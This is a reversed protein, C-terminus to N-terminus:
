GAGFVELEWLSYGWQTARQTGLMRVWRGSAVVDMDDIGGDGNTTAYVTIWNKNDLSTQVQYSRAYATEWTLRVHSVVRVSGLDVSIWQPDSWASGWRTSPNGDVANSGALSDNELSSTVTPRGQSLLAVTSPATHTPAASPSLGGSPTASSPKAAPPGSTTSVEPPLSTSAVGDASRTTPEPAQPLGAARPSRLALPIAVSGAVVLLVVLVLLVPPWRQKARRRGHYDDVQRLPQPLAEWSDADLVPPGPHDLDRSLEESM